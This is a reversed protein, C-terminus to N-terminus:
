RCPGDEDDLVSRAARDFKAKKSPWFAYVVAALFMAILLFLGVTKAIVVLTDHSVDM